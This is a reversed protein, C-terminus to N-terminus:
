TGLPYVAVKLSCYLHFSVCRDTTLIMIHDGTTVVFKTKLLKDSAEIIKMYIKENLKGFFM